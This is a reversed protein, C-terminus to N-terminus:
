VAVGVAVLVAVGVALEVGVAVAVVVAVAVAVGVGVGVGPFSVILGLESPNPFFTLVPFVLLGFVTLIVFVLVWFFRATFMSFSIADGDTNSTFDCHALVSMGPWLQVADTVKLGTFVSCVIPLRIIKSM